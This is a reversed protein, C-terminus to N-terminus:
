PRALRFFHAGDGAAPVHTAYIWGDTSSRKPALPKWDGASLSTAEQLTWHEFAAPWSFELGGGPASRVFTPPAVAGITASLQADFNLDAGAQGAQHLEVALLNRGRVLTAPDIMHHRWRTQDAAAVESL